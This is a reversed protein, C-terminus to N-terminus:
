EEDSTKADSPKRKARVLSVTQYRSDSVVGEARLRNWLEGAFATGQRPPAIRKALKEAAENTISVDMVARVADGGFLEELVPLARGADIKKRSQKLLQLHGGGPLDLRRIQRVVDEVSQQVVKLAEGVVKADVWARAMDAPLMGTSDFPDAHVLAAVLQTVVPCVTIGACRQCHIGRRYPGDERTAARTAEVTALVRREVEAISWADLTDHHWIIRGSPDVNAISVRVSDWDLLKSLIMAYIGVQLNIAPDDVREPGKWDIVWQQDVVFLDVTGTIWHSPLSPDYGSEGRGAELWHATRTEPDYAVGVEARGRPIEEVDIAECTARWPAGAPVRALAEDRTMSQLDFLFGHRGTGDTAARGSESYIDPLTASAPCSEATKLGSASLRKM